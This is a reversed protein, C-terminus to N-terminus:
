AVVRVTLAEPSTLIIRFQNANLANAESIQSPTIVEGDVTNFATFSIWRSNLNHTITHTGASAGSYLFSRGTADSQSM